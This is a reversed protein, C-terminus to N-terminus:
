EETAAANKPRSLYVGLVVGTCFSLGLAMYPNARVARDVKQGTYVAKNQLHRYTARGVEAAASGTMEASLKLDEAAQHLHKQSSETANNQSSETVDNEM